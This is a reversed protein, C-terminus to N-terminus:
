CVSIESILYFRIEGTTLTSSASLHFPFLADTIQQSIKGGKALFIRLFLQYLYRNIYVLM